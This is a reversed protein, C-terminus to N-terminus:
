SGPYWEHGFFLYCVSRDSRSTESCVQIIKEKEKRSSCKYVGGRRLCSSIQKWGGYRWNLETWNLWETTDWEKHGWPGCCMLSGQGDGVGPAQEFEHGNLWHHWGVMEDETMWKEGQKWDKGADPDKGTLWNRIPSVSQPPFQTM